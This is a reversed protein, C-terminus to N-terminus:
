YFILAVFSWLVAKLNYKSNNRIETM